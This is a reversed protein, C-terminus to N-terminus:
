YDNSNKVKNRAVQESILEENQYTITINCFENNAVEIMNRDKKGEIDFMWLSQLKCKGLKIASVGYKDKDSEDYPSKWFENKFDHQRYKADIEATIEDFLDFVDDDTPTDICVVATHFKDDDTFSLTIAITNRGGFKADTYTFIHPKDTYIKAEPYKELFKSKAEAKSCGFPIGIFGTITTTQAKATNIFLLGIVLYILNKM